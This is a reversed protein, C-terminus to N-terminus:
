ERSEGFLDSFSLSIAVDSFSRAVVNKYEKANTVQRYLCKMIYKNINLVNPELVWAGGAAFDIILGAPLWLINGFITAWKHKFHRIIQVQSDEYGEKKATVIYNRHRALSITAPTRVNLKGVAVKAGSPSSNIAINQRTGHILTGCGQVFFSLVLITIVSIKRM